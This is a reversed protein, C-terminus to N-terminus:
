GEAAEHLADWYMLEYRQLLHAAERMAQAPVGRDLGSQIVALAAETFGPADAAFLDFFAVDADGMGYQSRLASALRGCNKGWAPLNVLFAAAFDADSGYAALWAVFHAYALAGALPPVAALAARDLGLARAFSALAALAATETKLGEAFFPGSPTHGYRHILLAISRMDSAIIRQQQGAFVRLQERPLRGAAVAAVYPHDFLRQELPQLERRLEAVLDHARPM